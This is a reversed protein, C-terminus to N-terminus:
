LTSSRASGRATTMDALKEYEGPDDKHDTVTFRTTLKGEMAVKPEDLM